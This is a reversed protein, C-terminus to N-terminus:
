SASDLLDLLDDGASAIPAPVRKDDISFGGMQKEIEKSRSEKKDSADFM